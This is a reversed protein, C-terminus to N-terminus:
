RAPRFLRFLGVLFLLLLGGFAEFLQILRDLDHVIKEVLSGEVAALCDIRDLFRGGGGGPGLLGRGRRSLAEFTM